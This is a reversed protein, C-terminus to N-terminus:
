KKPTAGAKPKDSPKSKALEKKMEDTPEIGPAPANPDLPEQGTRLAPDDEKERLEGDDSADELKFIAGTSYPPFGKGVEEVWSDFWEPDVDHTIGYGFRANPSNSGALTVKEGKHELTVGNPLKCAIAFNKM